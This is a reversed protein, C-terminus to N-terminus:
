PEWGSSCEFRRVSILDSNLRSRWCLASTRAMYPIVRREFPTEQYSSFEGAVISQVSVGLLDGKRTGTMTGATVVKDGDALHCMAESRLDPFAQQERRMEGNISFHEM